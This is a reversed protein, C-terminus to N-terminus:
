GSAEPMVGDLAQGCRFCYQAGEPQPAGCSPCFRARVSASGQARVVTAGGRELEQIAAMAQAAYKRRVFEFDEPTMKGTQLDFEAEKIAALAERKQQELAKRRVDLDDDPTPASFVYRGWFPALVFGLAAVTFLIVLTIGLTMDLM